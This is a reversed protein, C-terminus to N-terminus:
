NKKANSKQDNSIPYYERHYNELAFIMFLLKQNIYKSYYFGGIFYSISHSLKEKNNFWKKLINQFDDKLKHYNLRLYSPHLDDLYDQSQNYNIHYKYFSNMKIMENYYEIETDKIIIEKSTLVTLLDRLHQIDSLAQFLTKREVYEFQILINQSIKIENLPNKITPFKFEFVIKIKMNGLDYVISPVPKYKIEGLYSNKYYSLEYGNMNIFSNMLSYNVRFSNSEFNEKNVHKGEIMLSVTWVSKVYKTSTSNYKVNLPVLGYITILKGDITKGYVIECPTNWNTQDIDDFNFHGYLELKKENDIIELIGSIMKNESGPIYWSGEIKM